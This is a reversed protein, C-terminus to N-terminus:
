AALRGNALLLDLRGNRRHGADRWLMDAAIVLHRKGRKLIVGNGGFLKLLDLGLSSRVNQLVADSRLKSLLRSSPPVLEYADGQEGLDSLFYDIREAKSFAKGRGRQPTELQEPQM